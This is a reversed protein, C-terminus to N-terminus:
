GRRDKLADLLGALATQAAGAQEEDVARRGYLVAEFLQTLSKIEVAGPNRTQAAAFESPTEPLRRPRGAAALITLMEQYAAIVADQAEGAPNIPMRDRRRVRALMLGGALAGILLLVALGYVNLFTGRIVALWRQILRLQPGFNAKAYDSLRQMIFSDSGFVAPEPLAFGPTPDFAIWGYNPFYAEAWSHAQEARVEYYGTLPNYDGPAYGTVLRAPIGNLRALVVFASAFQDCSGRRSNFLFFDVADQDERQFPANLSYGCRQRLATQIAALKGYPKDLGATIESALRVDRAPLSPLRLYAIVDKNKYIGPIKALRAPDAQDYHSVTSYVVGSDLSFSSTLASDKDQWVAAAPFYLLSAQYPAFVINPQDAVIYYSAITERAGVAGEIDLQPLALPPRDTPATKHPKGGGQQWGKGTYTDFVQARHYVPNTAKVRMMLDRSLRGRVRLDLAESFGPYAQGSFTARSMPLRENLNVHGGNLLGGRFAAQLAREASFPLSQVRMGPLRPTVIYIIASIGLLILSLGALAAATPGVPIQRSLARPQLGLESVHTLFLAALAFMMFLALYIIFSVDLALTGAMSILVLGAVLSFYLDRRAPVDFSHLVQIWLFLEALPVRTDYPEAVMIYFFYFTVFLLAFSLMIKLGVNANDRKRWSYVFGLIIGTPAIANTVAGFYGQSIVAATGTLIAALVAVRAAISNESPLKKNIARYRALARKFM